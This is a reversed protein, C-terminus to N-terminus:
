LMPGVASFIMSAPIGVMSAARNNMPFHVRFRTSPAAQRATRRRLADLFLVLFLLGVLHVAENESALRGAM